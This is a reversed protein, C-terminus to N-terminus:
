GQPRKPPIDYSPITSPLGVRMFFRAFAQSFHELYPSRLRWRGSLSAAHTTLYGFPLSHIIRFNVVYAAWKDEPTTPSALLHLGEVRGQRVREWQGVKAFDINASEFERLTHIPCCAVLPAKGNELDCSQTMIILDFEQVDVPTPTSTSKSAQDFDPRIVPVACTPILDGQALSYGKLEQWFSEM